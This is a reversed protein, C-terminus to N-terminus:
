EKNVCSIAWSRGYYGKVVYCIAKNDEDIFTDVIANSKTWDLETDGVTFSDFWKINREIVVNYAAVSCLSVFLSMLLAVVVTIIKKM